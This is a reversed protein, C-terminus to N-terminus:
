KKSEECVNFIRVNAPNTRPSADYTSPDFRSFIRCGSPSVFVGANANFFRHTQGNLHIYLGWNYAPRSREPNYATGTAYVIGVATDHSGWNGYCWDSMNVVLPPAPHFTFGERSRFTISDSVIGNGQYGDGCQVSGSIFYRGIKSHYARYETGFSVHNGVLLERYLKGQADFLALQGPRVSKPNVTVGLYGDGERLPLAWYNENAPPDNKANYAKCTYPSFDDEYAPHLEEELKEGFKGTLVKHRNEPAVGPYSRRGTGWPYAQPYVVMREPTFCVLHGRYPTIELTQTQTDFIAIKPLELEKAKWDGFKLYSSIIYREDMWFSNSVGGRPEIVDIYPFLNPSETLMARQEDTLELPVPRKPGRYKLKGSKVWQDLISQVQDKPQAWVAQMTVALAMGILLRTCLDALSVHRGQEAAPTRTNAGVRLGLADLGAVLALGASKLDVFRGRAGTKGACFAITKITFGPGDPPSVWRLRLDASAPWAESPAVGPGFHKLM